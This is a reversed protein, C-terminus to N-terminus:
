QRNYVPVPGVSTLLLLFNGRKRSSMSWYSVWAFLLYVLLHHHLLVFCSTRSSLANPYPTVPPFPLPPAKPLTTQLLTDFFGWIM